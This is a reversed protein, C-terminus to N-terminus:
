NGPSLCLIVSQLPCVCYASTCHHIPEGERRCVGRKCEQQLDILESIHIDQDHLNSINGVAQVFQKIPCVWDWTDLVVWVGSESFNLGWGFFFEWDEFFGLVM